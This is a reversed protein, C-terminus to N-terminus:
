KKMSGVMDEPLVWLDFEEETLYGLKLASGKLTLGEKHAKKAIEAAKDYGIHTNLATVLMLSENLLQSIRDRNPEIGVACHENFGQMGDALLRISQLYNHIVMPRFVNLEFNGSAGGINVAVDNGLVQACLMTMAECQTPNVKGPMISSGPENEPISIEGIGCRPGSSLWRVDNAIKMLSAALGKLAGHGHVLADCTALAEFKNPATVFPQKTLDALARAVRVAYEPHTNLGTGVATGGLALECIHPISAEIHQLNHALMAAWGSIEQGLTLPTADQLHTRGIKVIDRYAEAKDSLTKHLVKLEPILHERVAIVAAVHMATPFVDNSSQSKNVDDNPHVRREEGRVGGLLESARNALVENMNMNTQTGSGTQWISLPFENTHQDALVEDAASIIANAREAPLLGLDMNVSAAARKTLALAHILATPMKESSIRFHELSRQTQAGWLRDAPVEIPGMSDKEIRVAAM